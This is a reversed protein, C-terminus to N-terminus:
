LSSIPWSVKFTRPFRGNRVRVIPPTPLVPQVGTRVRNAGSKIPWMNM